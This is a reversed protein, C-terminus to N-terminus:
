CLADNARPLQRRVEVLACPWQFRQPLLKRSERCLSIRGRYRLVLRHFDNEGRACRRLRSSYHDRMGVDESIEPGKFSLNRMVSLVLADKMGDAKQGHQREAVNEPLKQPNKNWLEDSAGDDKWLAEIRRFDQSSDPSFANRHQHRYRPDQLRQLFFDLAVGFDLTM